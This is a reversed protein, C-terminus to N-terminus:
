SIGLFSKLGEAYRHVSPEVNADLKDFYRKRRVAILKEQREQYKHIDETSTPKRYGVGARMKRAEESVRFAYREDFERKLLDNNFTITRRYSNIIEPNIGYNQTAM